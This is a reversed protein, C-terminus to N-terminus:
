PPAAASSPRVASAASAGSSAAAAQASAKEAAGKQRVRQERAFDEPKRGSRTVWERLVATEGLAAMHRVGDLDRRIEACTLDESGAAKVPLSAVYADYEGRMRDSREAPWGLQRGMAVGIMREILTDSREGLLEAIALCTQQRNVDRLATGRCATTLHQYGPLGYAAAAGIAETVMVWATVAAADDGPAANLILGPLVFFGLDSRQSTAIRHLAEDEAVRDKRARAEALAALWPSANGPDLRAWQAASLLQCAGEGRKDTGCTNYALAYARPDSSAAAKQALADRVQDNSAGAATMELMLAAAQALERKDSKLGAVVRARAEPLRTAREIDVEDFSGDSQMKVWAGGCIQIEDVGRLGAAGESGLSASSSLPTQNVVELQRVRAAVPAEEMPEAGIRGKSAERFVIAALVLVLIALVIWPWRWSLVSTSV